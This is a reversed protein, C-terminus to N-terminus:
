GAASVISPVAAGLEAVKRSPSQPCSHKHIALGRNNKAPKGCYPCKPGIQAPFAKGARPTRAKLVKPQKPKAKRGIRGAAGKGNGVPLALGFDRMARGLQHKLASADDLAARAEAESLVLTFTVTMIAEPKIEM